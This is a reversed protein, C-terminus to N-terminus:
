GPSVATRSNQFPLNDHQAVREGASSGLFSGITRCLPQMLQGQVGRGVFNLQVRNPYLTLVANTESVLAVDQKIDTLIVEIFLRAVIQM